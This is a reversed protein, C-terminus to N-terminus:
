FLLSVVELPSLKFLLHHWNQFICWKQLNHLIYRQPVLICFLRWFGFDWDRWIVMEWLIVLLILDDFLTCAFRNQGFSYSCWGCLQLHLSVCRALQCPGEDPNRVSKRSAWLSYSVQELLLLTCFRRKELLFSNKINFWKQSGQKMTWSSWLPNNTMASTLWYRLM